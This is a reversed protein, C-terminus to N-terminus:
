KRYPLPLNLLALVLKIESSLVSNNRPFVEGWVFEQKYISHRSRASLLSITDEVKSYLISNTTITLEDKICSLATGKPLIIFQSPNEIPFYIRQVLAAYSM